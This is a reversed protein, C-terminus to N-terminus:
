RGVPVAGSAGAANPDVMGGPAKPGGAPAGQGLSSIIQQFQENLAGLKQAAEPNMQSVGEALMNLGDSITAVFEAAGGGGEAPAEQGPAGAPAGIPAQDM